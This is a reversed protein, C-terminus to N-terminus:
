LAAGSVVTVKGADKLLKSKGNVTVPLDFGPISIILDAKGDSNIDGVSVAFGFNDNAANGYMASGIPAYNSGSWVSVSGTAKLLKKPNSTAKNDKWAGAIIDTKGDGNVDSAAVSYGLQAKANSGYKKTLEAGNSGSFVTVSGTDKKATTLDDDLPAGVLVDDYVDNNIRGVAVTKGFQSGKAGSQTFIPTSPNALLFAKVSGGNKAAGVTDNPAGIVVALGSGDLDGAVVSTGAYAKATAGYFPASLTGLDDGSYVTVSGADTYKNAVDDDKPAGVLIDARNDGNVDGLALAAGFDSKPVSGAIVANSRTANNPRGYIVTVTGTHTAGAKPAGVIVDDYGDHDIDGGGAVATGLADKAAAGTLVALEIGDKGSIVVVRGAGKKAKVKLEKNAPMTYSPMGVVYDGYGDGNFDGAFAVSAGTKNTKAEGVLERGFVASDFPFADCADGVGDGDTDLQNSNSVFPCNDGKQFELGVPVDTQGWANRGWCKVGNADIACTHEDGANVAVPKVLNSPVQTQGEANWGWCRLGNTHIACTHYGGASIAVPNVLTPVNLQGKSNGGGVTCEQLM